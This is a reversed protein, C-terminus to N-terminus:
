PEWWAVLYASYLIEQIGVRENNITDKGWSESLLVEHRRTNVGTIISAHGSAGPTNWKLWKKRENGFASDPPALPKRNALLHEERRADTFGRWVVIPIGRSIVEWIKQESLIASDGRVLRSQLTAALDQYIDNQAKLNKEYSNFTPILEYGTFGALDFTTFRCGYHNAIMTATGVMCYPGIQQSAPISLFIDGDSNTAVSSKLRALLENRSPVAQQSPSSATSPDQHPEIMIRIIDFNSLSRVCLESNTYQIEPVGRRGWRMTSPKGEGFRTELNTKLFDAARRREADWAKQKAMELNTRNGGIVKEQDFFSQEAFIVEVKAPLNNTLWLHVYAPPRGFVDIGQQAYFEEEAGLQGTRKGLSIWPSGPSQLTKWFTPTLPDFAHMIRDASHTEPVSIRSSADDSLLTLKGVVSNARFLKASARILIVLNGSSYTEKPITFVAHADDQDTPNLQGIQKQGALVTMSRRVPRPLNKENSESTLGGPCYLDIQYTASPNLGSYRFVISPAVFGRKSKAATILNAVLPLGERPHNADDYFVPVMEGHGLATNPHSNSSTFPTNGISQPEVRSSFPYPSPTRMMVPEMGLPRNVGSNVGKTTEEVTYSQLSSAAIPYEQGGRRIVANTGDNSVIEVESGALLKVSGVTKGEITIPLDVSQILQTPAAVAAGGLSLALILPTLRLSNM